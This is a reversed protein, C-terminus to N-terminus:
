LRVIAFVEQVVTNEILRRILVVRQVKNVVYYLVMRVVVYARNVNRTM